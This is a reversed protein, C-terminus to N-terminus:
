NSNDTQWMVFARSQALGQAGVGATIRARIPFARLMGAATRVSNPLVTDFEIPVAVLKRGTTVLQSGATIVADASNQNTITCALNGAANESKLNGVDFTVTLATLSATYTASTDSQFVLYGITGATLSDLQYPECLGDLTFWNTTDALGVPGVHAFATDRCWVGSANANSIQWKVEKFAWKCGAEASTSMLGFIAFVALVALAFRKM